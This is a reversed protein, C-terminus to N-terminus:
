FCFFVRLRAELGQPDSHSYVGLSSVSSDVISSIVTLGVSM